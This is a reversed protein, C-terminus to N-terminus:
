NKRGGRGEMKKRRACRSEWNELSVRREKLVRLVGVRTSRAGHDLTGLRRRFRRRLFCGPSTKRSNAIRRIGVVVVEIGRFADASRDAEARDSGLLRPKTQMANILVARM